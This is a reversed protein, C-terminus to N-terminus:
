AEEEVPNRGGDTLLCGLCVVEYVPVGDGMEGVWRDFEGDADLEAGCDCCCAVTPDFDVFDDSM